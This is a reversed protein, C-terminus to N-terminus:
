LLLVSTCDVELQKWCLRQVRRGYCELVPLSDLATRSILNMDLTQLTCRLNKQVDRYMSSKLANWKNIRWNELATLKKMRRELYLVTIIHPKCLKIEVRRWVTAQLVAKFQSDLLRVKPAHRQQMLPQVLTTYIIFGLLLPLLWFAWFAKDTLVCFVQVFACVYIVDQYYSAISAVTIDAGGDLIEGDHGLLPEAFSCQQIMCSTWLFKRLYWLAWLIACCKHDMSWLCHQPGCYLISQWTCWITCWIWEVTDKQVSCLSGFCWEWHQYCFLSNWSPLDAHHRLIVLHKGAMRDVAQYCLVQALSMALATAYLKWTNGGRFIILRGVVVAVQLMGVHTSGQVSAHCMCLGVQM